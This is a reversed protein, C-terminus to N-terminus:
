LSLGVSLYLAKVSTRYNIGDVKTELMDRYYGGFRYVLRSINFGISVDIDATPAFAKDNNVRLHTAGLGVAIEAGVGLVQKLDLGVGVGKSYLLTTMHDTGDLTIRTLGFARAADVSNNRKEYSVRLGVDCELLFGTDCFDRMTSPLKSVTPFTLGTMLLNNGDNLVLRRLTEQPPTTAPQESDVHQQSAQEPNLAVGAEQNQAHACIPMLLVVALLSIAHTWTRRAVAPVFVERM